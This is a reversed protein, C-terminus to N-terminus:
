KVKKQLINLFRELENPSIKEAVANRQKKQEQTLQDIPKSLLDSYGKISSTIVKNWRGRAEELPIDKGINEHWKKFLGEQVGTDKNEVNGFLGINKVNAFKDKCTTGLIIAVIILITITIAIAIPVTKDNQKKM